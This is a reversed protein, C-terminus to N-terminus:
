WVQVRRARRTKRDLEATMSESRKEKSEPPKPGEASRSAPPEVSGTVEDFVIPM